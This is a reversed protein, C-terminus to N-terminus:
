PHGRMMCMLHHDLFGGFTHSMASNAIDMMKMQSCVQPGELLNRLSDLITHLMSFCGKAMM